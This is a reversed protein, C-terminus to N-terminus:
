REFSPPSTWGSAMAASFWAAKDIGAQELAVVLDISVGELQASFTKAVLEFTPAFSGTPPQLAAAFVASIAHVLHERALALDERLLAQAARAVSCAYAKRADTTADLCAEEFLDEITKEPPYAGTDLQVQAARKCQELNARTAPAQSTVLAPNGVDTVATLEVKQYGDSSTAPDPAQVTLPVNLLAERPVALSAPLAASPAQAIERYVIYAIASSTEEQVTARLGGFQQNYIRELSRPFYKNIDPAVCMAILEEVITRADEYVQTSVDARASASLLAMWAFCSAATWCGVIRASRNRAFM